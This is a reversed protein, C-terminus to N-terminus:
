SASWRGYNVKIHRFNPLAQWVALDNSYFLIHPKLYSYARVFELHGVISWLKLIGSIFKSLGHWIALGNSYFM